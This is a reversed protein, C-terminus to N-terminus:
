SISMPLSTTDCNMVRSPTISAGAATLGELVAAPGELAVAAGLAVPELQLLELLGVGQQQPTAGILAERVGPRRPGVLGAEGVLQVAHRLVHDRGRELLGVPGVRRDDPAVDDLLDGLELV